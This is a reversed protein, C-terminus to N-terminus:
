KNNSKEESKSERKLNCKKCRTGYGSKKSYYHILEEDHIDTFKGEKYIQVEFYKKCEICKKELKQTAHNFRYNKAARAVFDPVAQTVNNSDLFILKNPGFYTYDKM